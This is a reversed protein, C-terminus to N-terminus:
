QATVALWSRNSMRTFCCTKKEVIKGTRVMTCRTDTNREIWQPIFSIEDRHLRRHFGRCFRALFFALVLAFMFHVRWRFLLVLLSGGSIWLRCGVSWSWWCWWGSRCYRQGKRGCMRFDRCGDRITRVCMRLDRCQPLLRAMAHQRVDCSPQSKRMPGLLLDHM